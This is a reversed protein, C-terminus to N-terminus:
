AKYKLLTSTFVPKTLAPNDFICSDTAKSFRMLFGRLNRVNGEIDEEVGMLFNAGEGQDFLNYEM